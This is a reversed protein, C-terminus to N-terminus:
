FFRAFGFWTESGWARALANNVSMAEWKRGRPMPFGRSNLAEAIARLTTAGSKQSFRERLHRADSRGFPQQAGEWHRQFHGWLQPKRRRWERGAAVVRLQPRPRPPQATGTRDSGAAAESRKAAAAEQEIAIAEAVWFPEAGTEALEKIHWQVDPEDM